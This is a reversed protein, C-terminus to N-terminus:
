LGNWVQYNSIGNYNDDNLFAKVMKQSLACSGDFLCGFIQDTFQQEQSDLKGICCLKSMDTQFQLIGWQIDKLIEHRGKDEQTVAYVFKGKEVKEFTPNDDVMISELFLYHRAM